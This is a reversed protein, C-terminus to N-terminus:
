HSIIFFAPMISKTKFNEKLPVFKFPAIRLVVKILNERALFFPFIKTLYQKNKVPAPAYLGPSWYKLLIETWIDKM